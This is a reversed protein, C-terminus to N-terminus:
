KQRIGEVHLEMHVLRASEGLKGPVGFDALALSTKGYFGARYGGWRDDGEGVREANITINKTVGRLTLDGVIDMKGDGKDIVKTSVFTATSYKGADLYKPAKIHKDRKAHNSDFSTTDVEVSVKSAAIDNKDYSFTGSFKNFRGTLWSFGLHSIKFNIFAHAGKQDIVYDAAVAPLSFAATAALVALSRTLIKKMMTEM